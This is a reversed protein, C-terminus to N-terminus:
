SGPASRVTRTQIIDPKLRPPESTMAATPQLLNPRGEAGGTSQDVESGQRFRAATEQVFWQWSLFEGAVRGFLQRSVSFSGANQDGDDTTVVWLWEPHDVQTVLLGLERGLARVRAPDILIVLSVEGSVIGWWANSDPISLTLPYYYKPFREAPFLPCAIPVDRFRHRLQELVRQAPTYGICCYCLGPEPWSVAHGM